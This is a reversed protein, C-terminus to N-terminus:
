YYRGRRNPAVTTHIVSCWRQGRQEPALCDESHTHSPRLESRMFAPPPRNAHEELRKAWAAKFEVDESRPPDYVPDGPAIDRGSARPRSKPIAVKRRSAPM